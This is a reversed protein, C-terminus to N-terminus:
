KEKEKKKNIPPLCYGSKPVVKVVVKKKRAQKKLKDFEKIANM